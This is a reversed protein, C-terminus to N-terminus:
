LNDQFFETIKDQNNVFSLTYFYDQNDVFQMLLKVMISDSVTLQRILKNFIQEKNKLKDIKNTNSKKLFYVRKLKVKGNTKPYYNKEIFPHQYIFVQNKVRRIITTDDTLPTFKHSLLKVVTSKGSGSKGVFLYGNDKYKIASSHIVLGRNQSLLFYIINELIKKYSAYEKYIAEFQNLRKSSKKNGDTFTLIFDVKKRNSDQVYLNCFERFGLTYMKYVDPYKSPEFRVEIIFDSINLFFKHM